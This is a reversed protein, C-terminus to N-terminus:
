DSPPHVEVVQKQTGSYVRMHQQLSVACNTIVFFRVSTLGVISIKCSNSILWQM